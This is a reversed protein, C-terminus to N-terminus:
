AMALEAAKTAESPKFDMPIGYAKRANADLMKHKLERSLDTRRATIRLGDPDSGIDFHTYDTGMVLRDNGVVSAVYNIDDDMYADFYINNTEALYEKGLRRWDNDKFRLSADSKGRFLLQLFAPAWSSGSEAFVFTLRPFKKPVEHAVLSAFAGPVRSLTRYHTDQPNPLYDNAAGGIHIGIALGLDQAREYLPHWYPHGSAINYKYGTLEVGCAGNKAGFELEEFARQPVRYPVKIMWRIRGKSEKTGEAAWRNYSRAMAAERVPDEVPDILWFTSYCVQVDVGMEDMHKLRRSLNSLDRCGEPYFSRNFNLTKKQVESADDAMMIMGADLEKISFTSNMRGDFFWPGQAPPAYHREKPDFYDWTRRETEIGHSDADIFGM